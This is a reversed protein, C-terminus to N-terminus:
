GESGPPTIKIPNEPVSPGTTKNLAKNTNDVLKIIEEPKTVGVFMTLVKGIAGIVGMISAVNVLFAPFYSTPNQIHYTVMAGGILGILLFINGINRINVPTNQANFNSLSLKM